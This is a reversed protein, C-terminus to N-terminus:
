IHQSYQQQPGYYMIQDGQVSYIQAQPGYDINEYDSSYLQTENKLNDVNKHLNLTYPSVVPMHNQVLNEKLITLLQKKNHFFNIMCVVVLITSITFLAAYGILVNLESSPELCELKSIPLEIVLQGELAPPGSCILNLTQSIILSDQSLGQYDKVYGTKTAAQTTDNLKRLWSTLWRLDCGCELPNNRLDFFALSNHSVVAPVFPLSNSQLDLLTLSPLYELAGSKISVLNPNHSIKLKQLNNLGSFAGAEIEKFSGRSIQLEQLSVLDSFSNPEISSINNANLTLARLASLDAFSQSPIKQLLNRDLSLTRLSRLGEFARDSISQLSCSELHIDQASNIMSFAGSGIFIFPNESLDLYELSSQDPSSARMKNFAPRTTGQFAISPLQVLRNGRLNLRKLSNLGLLSHNELTTLQNYSLDLHLLKHWRVFTLNRLITLSNHSIDFKEVSIWIQNFKSRLESGLREDINDFNHTPIELDSLLNTVVSDKLETISNHSTNFSKLERNRTLDSFDILALRNLALDLTKLQSVSDVGTLQSTQAHNITLHKTNPNLTLPIGSVGKDLSGRCHVELTQDQCSCSGPCYNQHSDSVITLLLFIVSIVLHVACSTILPPKSKATPQIVIEDHGSSKTTTINNTEKARPKRKHYSSNMINDNRAEPQQRQKPSINTQLSRYISNKFEEMERTESPKPFSEISELCFIM